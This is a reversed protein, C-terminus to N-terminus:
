DHLLEIKNHFLRVHVDIEYKGSFYTKLGSTQTTYLGQIAVTSAITFGAGATFNGSSHYMGFLNIQDRLFAANVGMDAIGKIGKIGRYCVEPELSSLAGDFFFRYSAATYFSAVDAQNYINKKFFGVLNPLAAQITWHPDTYAIGFDGEFYTGNRNYEGVEPDDADGQVKQPDIRTNLLVASIGMHLQQRDSLPLHYAYSLAVRNRNILGANDQNVTVGAGVRKGFYVDAAFTAVVPAGPIDQWENQYAATLNLSSDAGAMAPNGIYRNLYYQAGPPDM